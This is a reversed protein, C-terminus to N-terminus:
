KTDNKAGDLMEDIFAKVRDLLVGLTPVDFSKPTQVDMEITFPIGRYEIAISVHIM